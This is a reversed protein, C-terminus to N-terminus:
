PGQGQVLDLLTGSETGRMPVGSIYSSLAAGKKVARLGATADGLGDYPKPRHEMFLQGSVLLAGAFAVVLALQSLEDTEV